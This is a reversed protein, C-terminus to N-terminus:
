VKQLKSFFNKNIRQHYIIVVVQKVLSQSLGAVGARFRGHQNKANEAEEHGHQLQGAVDGEEVVDVIM